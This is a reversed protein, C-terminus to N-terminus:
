QQRIEWWIAFILGAVTTMLIVPLRGGWAYVYHRSQLVAMIVASAVFVFPINKIATAREQRFMNTITTVITILVALFIVTSWRPDDTLPRFVYGLYAGLAAGVFLTQTKLRM